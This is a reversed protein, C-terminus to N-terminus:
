REVKKQFYLELRLTFGARPNFGYQRPFTLEPILDIFIIRRSINRRYDATLFYATIQPGQFGTGTVGAVYSVASRENLVHALNASEAFQLYDRDDRWTLDTDFDVRWHPALPQGIKIESNASYGQSNFWALRNYSNLEWADELQWQRKVIFRVYPDVPLAVRLGAQLSKNWDPAWSGLDSGLGLVTTREDVDRLSPVAEQAATRQEPSDNEILLHLRASATPLDIHLRPRLEEAGQNTQDWRLDNTIRLWSNNETSWADATGFFNDVSRGTNDVWGAIREAYPYYEDLWGQDAKQAAAAPQLAAVADASGDSCVACAACCGFIGAIYKRM